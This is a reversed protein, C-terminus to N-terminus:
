TAAALVAATVQARTQADPWPGVLYFADVVDGGLTAVRAARVDAGCDELASTVRYLL